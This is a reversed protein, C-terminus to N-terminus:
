DLQSSAAASLMAERFADLTMELEAAGDEETLKHNQVLRFIMNRGGRREGRKEGVKEGYSYIRVTDLDLLKGDVVEKVEESVTSGALVNRTVKRMLELLVGHEYTRIKEQSEMKQLVNCIGEFDRVLKEAEVSDQATKQLDEQHTFIYFPLLALADPSYLDDISLEAMCVTSVTHELVQAGDHIRIRKPEATSQGRLQILASRPLYLDLTGAENGERANIALQLDYEAFRLVISGDPNTQCEVHFSHKVGRSDVISFHADVGRRVRSGDMQLLMMETEGPEIQENGTFDTGFLRNTLLVVLRQLMQMVTRWVDDFPTASYDPDEKPLTRTVENSDRVTPTDHEM